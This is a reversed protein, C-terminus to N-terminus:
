GECVYSGQGTATVPAGRGNLVHEIAGGGDLKRTFPQVFRVGGSGNLAVIGDRVVVPEFFYSYM